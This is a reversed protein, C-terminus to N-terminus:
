SCEHLYSEQLQSSLFTVTTSAASDTVKERTYTSLLPMRLHMRSERWITEFLENIKIALRTGGVKYIWADSGPAKGSSLAAIVKEVEAVTPPDDLSMNMKVQSLQPIVDENIHSPFNLVSDFHEVWRRLIEAKDTLLTSGDASLLPSSGTTQIGYITKLADYFRKTNNTDAYHQIEKAKKSCWANQM